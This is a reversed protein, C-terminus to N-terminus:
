SEKFLPNKQAAKFAEFFEGSYRAGTEFVCSIPERLSEENAWRRLTELCFMSCLTYPKFFRTKHKKGYIENLVVDYTPKHFAGFIGVDVHKRIMAILSNILRIGEKNSMAKYPRSSIAM